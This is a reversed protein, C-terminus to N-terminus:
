CRHGMDRYRNCSYQAYHRLGKKFTCTALTILMAAVSLPLLMAPGAPAKGLLILSPFWAMLGAPAVTCLVSILAPPLGSLPYKGIITLLDHGVSSIEECAVPRYFAGSALLYSLGMEIGVNALVLLLARLIWLPTIALQLKSAAFGVIFLGMLLGSNGTVPIFGDGFIQVWLPVPQILMHDVQGRGVRRSIQHLNAGCFLIGLAGGALTYFGLMFLVEWENMAGVGSFRMALLFVGMVGAVAMIWESIMVIACVRMDQLFWRLDMRAYLALHRGLQRLNDAM